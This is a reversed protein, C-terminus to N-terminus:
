SVDDSYYDPIFNPDGDAETQELRTQTTIGTLVCM